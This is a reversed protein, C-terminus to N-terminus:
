AYLICDQEQQSWDNAVNFGDHKVTVTIYRSSGQGHGWYLFHFIMNPQLRWSKFDM